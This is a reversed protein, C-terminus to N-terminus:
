EKGNLKLRRRGTKVEEEKEQKKLAEDERKRM